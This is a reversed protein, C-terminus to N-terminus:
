PARIPAGSKFLDSLIYSDQKKISNFNNFNRYSTNNNSLVTYNNGYPLSLENKDNNVAIESYKITDQYIVSNQVPNQIFDPSLYSTCSVNQSFAGQIIVLSFFIFLIRLFVNM